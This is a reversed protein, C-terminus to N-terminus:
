ASALGVSGLAGIKRLLQKVARTAVRWLRAPVEPARVSGQIKRGTEM